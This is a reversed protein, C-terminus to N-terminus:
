VYLCVRERCSARGIEDFLGECIYLTIPKKTKRSKRIRSFAYHSRYLISTKKLGKTFLYKPGKYNELISRGSFGKLEGTHDHIPFLLRESRFHDYYYPKFPLYLNQTKKETKSKKILGAEEYLAFIYLKETDVLDLNSLHDVLINASNKVCLNAQDAIRHDYGRKSLYDNLITNDQKTVYVQLAYGYVNNVVQDYIDSVKEPKRISIPSISVGYEKALWIVAEKFTVSQKEKVLDFINGHANCSFCHYQSGGTSNNDYLVM